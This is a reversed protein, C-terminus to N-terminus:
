IGGPPGPHGTIGPATPEERFRYFFNGDRFDHEDLVHRVLGREVLRQGLGVAEARTLEVERLLWDVAESGVFCRPYVTLLHRRDGVPVGDPERMRGALRALEAESWERPDKDPLADAPAAEGQAGSGPARAVADAGQGAGLRRGLAEALRALEPSRLHLDRQPFPIEIGLRRFAAEVRFGLDSVLQEQRQPQATWVELELEIADSGFRLFDVQPRPDRLALPHGKAADLLAARVARLDSGYAVGV